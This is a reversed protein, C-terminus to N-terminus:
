LKKNQINCTIGSYASPVVELVATDCFIPYFFFFFFVGHEGLYAMKLESLLFGFVAVVFLCSFFNVVAVFLFCHWAFQVM